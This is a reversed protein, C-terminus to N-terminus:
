ARVDRGAHPALGSAARARLARAPVRALRVPRAAPGDGAPLGDRGPEPLYGDAYKLVMDVHKQEDVNAFFPFAAAFCAVRLAAFGALAAVLATERRSPAAPPATPM